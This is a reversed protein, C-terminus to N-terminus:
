VVSAVRGKVYSSPAPSPAAWPGDSIDILDCDDLAPDHDPHDKHVENCKPAAGPIHCGVDPHSSHPCPEQGPGGHDPPCPPVPDSPCPGGELYHPDGEGPIDFEVGGGEGTPDSEDEGGVKPGKPAGGVRAGKASRRSAKNARHAAEKDAKSAKNSDAQEEHATHLTEQSLHICALHYMRGNTSTGNPNKNYIAMEAEVSYSCGRPVRKKEGSNLIKLGKVQMGGKVAQQVAELCEGHDANRHDGM